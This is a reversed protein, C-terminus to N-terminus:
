CQPIVNENAVNQELWSHFSAAVHSVYLTENQEKDRSWEKRAASQKHPFHLLFDQGLQYFRYGSRRVHQMWTIKNQGYGAFEEQFPPLDQCYRMVLYPEYRPSTICEIPLLENKDQTIWDMYRTSGHGSPNGKSDFPAIPPQDAPSTYLDVLEKKTTPIMAEHLDKCEIADCLPRLEFAPIVLATKYHLLSDRHGMLHDYLHLSPLFDADVYVFHSTKVAALAANRLRNVPYSKDDEFDSVVTVTLYDPNCGMSVITKFIVKQSAQTGVAVSIPHNGWRACHHKMLSLRNPSLQTVLTFDIKDEPFEECSPALESTAKFDFSLPLTPESAPLMRSDQTNSTDFSLSSSEDDSSSSYESLDFLFCRPVYLTVILLAYMVMCGRFSFLHARFSRNADQSKIAPAGITQPLTLPSSSM